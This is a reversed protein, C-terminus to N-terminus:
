SFTGQVEGALGSVTLLRFAGLFLVSVTGEDRFM